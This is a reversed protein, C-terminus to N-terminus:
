EIIEEVIIELKKAEQFFYDREKKNLVEPAIVGTQDIIDNVLMKTFIFACQGTLYSEHSLGSKEFAEILGPALAYSTIRIPKGDKSGEVMVQFAGEETFLGEDIIEKIENEYKPAPPAHDIVLDFPVYKMGKYEREEQSLFGMKYLTEALEVHPGGYRFIIDRVGKLYKDANVGMTIPEEHCHDVMRIEKDIGKFKMSVPNAFPSTKIFKGDTFRTPTEAMDEFAVVPSWWFPIFKKTWVGEYVNLEIRDCRDMKEASERAIVNALGPASGTNTLALVGKMKFKDNHISFMYHTSEEATKGPIETMCLDLYSAGVELAAEMITLNFEIPLGNVIIDVGEAVKVINKFEKANLQIAKGKSLTDGVATAAKLDYDACIIESVNPEENLRKAITSGQAGVGIILIRKM